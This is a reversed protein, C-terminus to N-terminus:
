YLNLLSQKNDRNNDKFRVGIIDMITYIMDDIRYYCDLKSQLINKIEAFDSQFSPTMYVMFPINSGAIVSKSDNYRAHGVYDDRSDFVDLAHDSFYFIIAEDESFLNMIKSVVFDNYLISNDYSALINRQEKKKDPYDDAKFRDRICM